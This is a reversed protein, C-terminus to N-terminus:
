RRRTNKTHPRSFSWLASHLEEMTHPEPSGALELNWKLNTFQHLFAYATVRQVLLDDLMEDTFGYGHYLARRLGEDNGTISTTAVFEYLPDGLMADGFDILGTMQWHGDRRELLVHEDTIDADLLVTPCSRDLALLAEDLFADIMPLWAPDAGRELQEASQAIRREAVFAKWDRTLAELGDTPVAHLEALVQGLRRCIALRDDAPVEDWVENLPTGDVPELVLYPWGELEGGAILRPVPIDPWGTLHALSVRESVEDSAWVTYFLKILRHPGAWFVVHSGPPAMALTAPDLAERRCIERLAPLWADTNRYIKQYAAVDPVEPLLHTM